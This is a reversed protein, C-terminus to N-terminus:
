RSAKSCSGTSQDLLVPLINKSASCISQCNNNTAVTVFRTDQWVYIHCRKDRLSQLDPQPQTAVQKFDELKFQCKGQRPNAIWDLSQVTNDVVNISINDYYGDDERQECAGNLTVTKSSGASGGGVACASLGLVCAALLVATLRQNSKM